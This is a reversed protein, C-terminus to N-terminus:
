GEGLAHRKEVLVRRREELSEQKEREREVV